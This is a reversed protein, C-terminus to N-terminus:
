RSCWLADLCISSWLCQFGMPSKNASGTYPNPSAAWNPGAKGLSVLQIGADVAQESMIQRERQRVALNKKDSIIDAVDNNSINIM